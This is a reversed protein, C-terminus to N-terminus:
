LHGPEMRQGSRRRHRPLVCQRCHRSRAGLSRRCRHGCRTRGSDQSRHRALKKELGPGPIASPRSKDIESGEQEGRRLEERTLLRRKKPVPDPQLSKKPSAPEKKKLVSRIQEMERLERRSILGQRFMEFLDKGHGVVKGVTPSVIPELFVKNGRKELEQKLQDLQEATRDSRVAVTGDQQAKQILQIAEKPQFGLEVLDCCQKENLLTAEPSEAAHLILRSLM